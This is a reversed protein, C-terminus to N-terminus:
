SKSMRSSMHVISKTSLLPVGLVGPVGLFTNRRWYHLLVPNPGNDTYNKDISRWM